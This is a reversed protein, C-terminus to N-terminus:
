ERSLEAHINCCLKAIIGCVFCEFTSSPLIYEEWRGVMPLYIPSIGLLTMEAKWDATSCCHWRQTCVRLEVMATAHAISTDSVKSVQQHIRAFTGLRLIRPLSRGAAVEFRRLNTSLIGGIDRMKATESPSSCFRSHVIPRAERGTQHAEFERGMPLESIKSVKRM